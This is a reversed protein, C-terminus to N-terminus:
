PQPHPHPNPNPSRRQKVEAAKAEHAGKLEGLEQEVKTVQERLKAAAAEAKAQEAAKADLLEKDSAISAELKQIAGKLDKKQEFKLKSGIKDFQTKLEKEKEQQLSNQEYERVSGLKLGKSFSAFVRDEEKNCREVLAQVGAEQQGRTQQLSKMEDAAKTHAKRAAQLDATLKTVKGKTINLDAEATKLEQQKSELRHAAAQEREASRHLSGIASLEQTMSAESVKLTDYEQQNWRAARAREGGSSGGTMLGAKNIVTGDITVVKYREGGTGHYALKRAQSGRSCAGAYAGSGM